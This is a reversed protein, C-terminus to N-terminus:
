FMFLTMVCLYFWLTSGVSCVLGICYRYEDSVGYSFIVDKFQELVAVACSNMLNLAQEDNPKEFEHVESFRGFTMFGFEQTESATELCPLWAFLFGDMLYEIVFQAIPKGSFHALTVWIDM